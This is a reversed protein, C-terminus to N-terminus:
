CTDTSSKPLLRDDSAENYQFVSSGCIGSIVVNTLYFYLNTLTVEM